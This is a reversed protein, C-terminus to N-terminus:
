SPTTAEADPPWSCAWKVRVRRGHSGWAATGAAASGQSGCDSRQGPAAMFGGHLRRRRSGGWQTMRGGSDVSAVGLLFGAARGCLCGYEWVRRRGGRRADPAMGPRSLVASHGASLAARRPHRGRGEGAGARILAGLARRDAQLWRMCSCLTAHRARPRSGIKGRGGARFLKSEGPWAPSAGPGEEGGLLGHSVAGREQIDDYQGPM